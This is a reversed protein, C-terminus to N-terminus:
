EPREPAPKQKAVKKLKEDFAREDEDSDLARAAEQFRRFQDSEAQTKRKEPPVRKVNSM